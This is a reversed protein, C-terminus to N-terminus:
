LEEKSKESQQSSSPDAAAAAKAANVADQVEDFISDITDRPGWVNLVKGEHNVLYKFFNWEPM